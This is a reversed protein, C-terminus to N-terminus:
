YNIDKQLSLFFDVIMTFFKFLAISLGHHLVDLCHETFFTLRLFSLLLSRQKIRITHFFVLMIYGKFGDTSSLKVIHLHLFLFWWVDTM